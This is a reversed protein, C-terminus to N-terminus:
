WVEQLPSNECHVEVSKPSMTNKEVICVLNMEKLLDLIDEKFNQELSSYKNLGFSGNYYLIELTEQMKNEWDEGEEEYAQKYGEQTDCMGNVDGFFAQALCLEEAYLATLNNLLDYIEPIDYNYSESDSVLYEYEDLIAVKIDEKSRCRFFSLKAEVREALLM